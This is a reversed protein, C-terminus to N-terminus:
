TITISTKNNENLKQTRQQTFTNTHYRFHVLRKTNNSAILRTQSEGRQILTRIPFSRQDSFAFGTFLFVMNATANTSYTSFHKKGTLTHLTCNRHDPICFSCLKNASWIKKMRPLALGGFKSNKSMSSKTVSQTGNGIKTKSTKGHHSSYDTYNIEPSKSINNHGGTLISPLIQQFIFVNIQTSVVVRTLISLIFHTLKFVRTICHYVCVCEGSNVIAVKIVNSLGLSSVWVCICM